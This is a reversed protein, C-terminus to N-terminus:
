CGDDFHDREVLFYLKQSDTSFILESFDISISEWNEKESPVYDSPNLSIINEEKVSNYITLEDQDSYAVLRNDLSVAIKGKSTRSGGGEKNFIKQINGKLDSMFIGEIQEYIVSNDDNVFRPHNGTDVSILEESNIEKYQIQPYELPESVSLVIKSGDNTIDYQHSTRDTIKNYTSDSFNVLWMGQGSKTGSAGVILHNDDLYWKHSGLVNLDELHPIANKESTQINSIWVTTDKQYAFFDGSPSLVFDRGSNDINLTDEIGQKLNLRHLEEPARIFDKTYYIENNNPSIGYIRLYSEPKDEGGQSPWNYISNISGDKVDLSWLEYEVEHYDLGCSTPFEFCSNLSLSLLTLIILPFIRRM